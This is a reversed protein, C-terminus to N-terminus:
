SRALETVIRNMDMSLEDSVHGLAAEDISDEGGMLDHVKGDPQLLYAAVLSPDLRIEPPVVKALKDEPLKSARLLNNLAYLVTLSHTTIVVRIGNKVLYALIEVVAREAAPHLHIEPEEVYLTFPESLQGDQRLSFLAQPIISLAANARQGSSAMDLDLTRETKGDTFFWKWSDGRKRAEGALVRRARDRVWRGEETDPVGRPFNAAIRGSLEMTTSFAELILPAGILNLSSPAMAYLLRETPIFVASLLQKSSKDRLKDILEVLSKRPTAQSTKSQVNVSLEHPAAVGDGPELLGEWKLTANPVTLRAFSRHSSRLGDLIRRLVKRADDAGGRRRAAADFVLLASLGRFLYLVQAVLSKGTGQKGIFVTLPKVDFSCPLLPGLRGSAITLKEPARSPDIQPAKNEWVKSAQRAMARLNAGFRGVPLPETTEGCAVRARAHPPPGRMASSSLM